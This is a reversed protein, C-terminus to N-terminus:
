HTIDIDFDKLKRISFNVIIYCRKLEFQENRGYGFSCTKRVFININWITIIMYPHVQYVTRPRPDYVHIEYVMARRKSM